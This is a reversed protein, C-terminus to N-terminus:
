FGNVIVKKVMLVRLIKLFGWFVWSLWVRLVANICNAVAIAYCLCKLTRFILHACTIINAVVSHAFAIHAFSCRGNNLGTWVKGCGASLQAYKLKGQMKVLPAISNVATESAHQTSTHVRGCAAQPRRAATQTSHGVAQPM